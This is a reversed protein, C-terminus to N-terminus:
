KRSQTGNPVATGDQASKDRQKTPLSVPFVGRGVGDIILEAHRLKRGAATLAAKEASLGQTAPDNLDGTDLRKGVKAKIAIQWLPMKPNERRLTYCKLVKEISDTEPISLLKYRAKSESLRKQGRKRGHHERIVKGLRKSIERRSYAMPISILLVEDEIGKDFLELVQQKSLAEVKAPAHPEAFLVAGRTVGDANRLQWWEKFDSAHVDGFDQYLAKYKGKGGKKCTEAYGEHLRLFAWWFYYASQNWSVGKRGRADGFVPAKAMFPAPRQPDIM